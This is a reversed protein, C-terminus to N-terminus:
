GGSMWASVPHLTWILPSPDPNMSFSVPRSASSGICIEIAHTMEEKRRNRRDGGEERILTGRSRRVDVWESDSTRADASMWRVLLLDLLLLLLV